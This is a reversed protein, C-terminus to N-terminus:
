APDNENRQKGSAPSEPHGNPWGFRDQDSPFIAYGDRRKYDNFDVTGTLWEMVGGDPLRITKYVHNTPDLRRTAAEHEDRLIPRNYIM